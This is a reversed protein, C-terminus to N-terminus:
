CTIRSVKHLSPNYLSCHVFDGTLKNAYTSTCKIAIRSQNTTHISKLTPPKRKQSQIKLPKLPKSNNKAQESKVNGRIFNMRTWPQNSTRQVQIQQHRLTPIKRTKQTQNLLPATTIQAAQRNVVAERRMVPQRHPLHRQVTTKSNLHLTTQVVIPRLVAKVEPEIHVVCFVLHVNQRIKILNKM